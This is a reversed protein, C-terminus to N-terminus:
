NDFELKLQNCMFIVDSAVKNGFKVTNTVENTSKFFESILQYNVM